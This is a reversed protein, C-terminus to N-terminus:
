FSCFRADEICFLGCGNPVTGTFGTGKIACLSIIIIIIIIVIIILNLFFRAGIIIEARIGVLSPRARHIIRNRGLDGRVWARRIQCDEGLKIPIM